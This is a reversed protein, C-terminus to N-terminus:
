LSRAFSEVLSTPTAVPSTELLNPSSQNRLERLEQEIRLWTGDAQWQRDYGYVTRWHPFEHPLLRWPCGSRRRYRIANLIARLSVQRAVGVPRSPPICERVARWQLDTLDSPYNNM